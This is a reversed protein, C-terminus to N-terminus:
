LGRYLLVGELNWTGWPQLPARILSIGMDPSKILMEEQIELSPSGGGGRRGRWPAEESFSAGDRTGGEDM